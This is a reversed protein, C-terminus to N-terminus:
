YHYAPINFQARLQGDLAKNAQDLSELNNKRPMLSAAVPNGTSDTSLPNQQVTLYDGFLQKANTFYQYYGRHLKETEPYLPLRKMDEVAQNYRAVLNQLLKQAEVKDNGPIFMSIAKSMLADAKQKETPNMQAKRRIDDYNQFWQAITAARAKDPQGGQSAAASQQPPYFNGQQQQGGPPGYGVPMNVPMGPAGQGQFQQYQPPYQGQQASASKVDVGLGLSLALILPITQLKFIKKLFANVCTMLFALKVQVPRVM